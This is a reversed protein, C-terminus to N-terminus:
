DYFVSLIIGEDFRIIINWVELICSYRQEASSNLYQKFTTDINFRHLGGLLIEM